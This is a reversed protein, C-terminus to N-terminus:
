RAGGKEGLVAAEDGLAHIVLWAPVPTRYTLNVATRFVGMMMVRRVFTNNSAALAARHALYRTRPNNRATNRKSM